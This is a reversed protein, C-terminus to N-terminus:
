PYLQFPGQKGQPAKGKQVVDERTVESLTTFARELEKELVERMRSFPLRRFLEFSLVQQQTRKGAPQTWFPLSTMAYLSWPMEPYFGRELVEAFTVDMTLALRHDVKGHAWALRNPWLERGPMFRYGRRACFAEWIPDFEALKKEISQIRIKAPTAVSTV